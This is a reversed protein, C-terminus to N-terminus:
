RWSLVLDPLEDLADIIYDPHEMGVANEGEDRSAIGTTVLVTNAGYSNGCAIDTDLRDGVVWTSDPSEGECGLEKLLYELSIIKPKGIIEPVADSAAAIAAVMSGAGPLLRNGMAPFMADTNTAIFVAGNVFIELQSRAIKNFNINKAWGVIVIECKEGEDETDVEFGAVSLTEALGDGGVVYVRAGGHGKEILYRATAEGSTMIEKIEAPIGHKSLVEIYSERSRGSNNTLFGTMYGAKRLNVMCGPADPQTEDGRYIVGDM